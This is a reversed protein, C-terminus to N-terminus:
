TYINEALSDFSASAPTGLGPETRRDPARHQAAPAPHLWIRRQGPLSQAKSSPACGATMAPAPNSVFRM